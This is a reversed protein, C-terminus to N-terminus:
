QPAYRQLLKGLEESGVEGPVREAALRLFAIYERNRGNVGASGRPTKFSVTKSLLQSKVETVEGWYISLVSGFPSYVDFRDSYAVVQHVFATLFIHCGALVCVLAFLAIFTYSGSDAGATDPALMKVVDLALGVALLMAAMIGTEPVARVRLQEEAARPPQSKKAFIATALILLASIGLSLTVKTM